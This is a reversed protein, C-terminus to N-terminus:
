HNITLYVCRTLAVDSAFLSCLSYLQTSITPVRGLRWGSDATVPRVGTDTFVRVPIDVSSQALARRGLGDEVQGENTSM